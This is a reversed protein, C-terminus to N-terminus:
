LSMGHRVLFEWGIREQALRKGGAVLNWATASLGGLWACDERLGTAEDPADDASGDDASDLLWRYSELHPEIAPLGESVARLAARRPIRLGAADIDGFYLVRRMGGLEEFIRGLFGVSDIFRNGGGYIVASFKPRAKDWEVYTHWTSLNELVIVPGDLRRGRQWGLPEPVAFCRLHDLTLRGDRFLSTALISDLRKEDGFLELSREKVPVYPTSAARTALFTDIRVLDEFNLGIRAERVFALAPQWPYSALRLRDPDQPAAAYGFSIRWREEAQLPLAIREIEGTRYRVTKLEVWGERDLALADRVADQRETASVIGADELLSEWRRSFARGAVKEREGRNRLWQAFLERAVPIRSPDMPKVLRM